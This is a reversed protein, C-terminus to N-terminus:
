RSAVRSNSQGNVRIRRVNALEAVSLVTAAIVERSSARGVGQLGQAIEIRFAYTLTNADQGVVVLEANYAGQTAAIGSARLIAGSATREITLGTVTQVLGRTDVVKTTSNLPVLPRREGNTDLPAETSQGFWNLPNFRSESIRACGSVTLAVCVALTLSRKM